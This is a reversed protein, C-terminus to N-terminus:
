NLNGYYPGIAVLIHCSLNFGQILVWNLLSMALGQMRAQSKLKLATPQPPKPM